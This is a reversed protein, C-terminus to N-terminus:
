KKVNFFIVQSGPVGNESLGQVVVAYKGPLDSSYFGAGTKGDAGSIMEPSWYLLTRFDPLHSNMQKETEYKPSFFERQEPIGPYDIITAHANLQIGDLDGPYTTANLIGDFSQEGVAYERNVLDLRRIKKPDQQFFEDTDFFPVGDILILPEDSFFADHPLDFLYLNFNNRKKMLKSSKVYERIVEEMTIFRTYDDLVYKEDPVVYFSNTDVPQTDFRNLKPGDYIHQVQEHISQDLLTTSFKSPASFAPVPFASYEQSFPNSIEVQSITDKKTNVQSILEQSGYFDTVEFKVVGKSDSTTVRFQTRGSPISLYTDADPVAMHTKGNVVKGSIIHGNLEPTYLPSFSKGKMLQEWNYKRWGHTLMLNDIYEEKSKVTDRFYFAPSEVPGLGANLYYYSTIDSEDVTQLSDIRYVALSMNAPVPNGSQDRTQLDLNIKKRTSYAQDSAASILFKNEPYKFFLRECVPQGEQNFLTIRSIGDQLEAPKIFFEAQRNSLQGKKVPLAARTSNVFLYVTQMDMDTSSVVKVVVQSDTNKKISMVLGSPYPVPLEKVIQKGNPSQIIARYLLGPVPTFTFNGLGMHLPRFKLLTDGNSSVLLSEFDQGKGFRDTMRFGVKNPLNQVLNGGEPFFQIDYGPMKTTTSDNELMNPNLIRIPKEFFGEAGFNRMWTSYARFKYMGSPLSTPIVLSGFSEGAKLSVKQQVVALNNKDLIEVYAIKSFSGQRNYFGDLFYMRFWLIERALYSDKDTHVYLKEQIYQNESRSYANNIDPVSIGNQSFVPFGHFHM